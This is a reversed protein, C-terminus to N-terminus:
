FAKYSTVLAVKIFVAVLAKVIKEFLINVYNARSLRVSLFVMELIGIYCYLDLITTM